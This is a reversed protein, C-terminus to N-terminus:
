ATFVSVKVNKVAARSGISFSTSFLFDTAGILISKKGQCNKAPLCFNLNRWFKSTGKHM